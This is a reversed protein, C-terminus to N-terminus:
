QAIKLQDFDFNDPRSSQDRQHSGQNIVLSFHIAIFIVFCAYFHM